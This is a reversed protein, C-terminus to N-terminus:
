NSQRLKGRTITKAKFQKYKARVRCKKFEILVLPRFCMDCRRTYDSHVLVLMMVFAMNRVKSMQIMFQIVFNVFGPLDAALM